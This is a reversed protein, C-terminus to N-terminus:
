TFLPKQNALEALWDSPPGLTYLSTCEGTSSLRPQPESPSPGGQPLAGSGVEQSGSPNGPQCGGRPALHSAKGRPQWVGRAWHGRGPFPLDPPGVPDRGEIPRAGVPVGKPLGLPSPLSPRPAM